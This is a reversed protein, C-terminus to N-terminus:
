CGSRNQNRTRLLLAGKRKIQLTRAEQILVNLNPVLKVLPISKRRLVKVDRDLIQVPEDEFTLDPRVEIEEISVVHTPDSRYQRLMSVHFMDYIRDLELPLELQYAVTGMCKLIRYPGIFRPSLKGKRSFRLVKKKEFQGDTQPYFSTSFELKSELAEHLKMSGVEFCLVGDNNVEFDTTSGSEVQCHRLGLSQEELQKVRILAQTLVYKLKGFSSQQTNTWVFLVGKHLLKTLPVVILSFGEVVGSLLKNLQRYNISMRMTGNKKKVFLVSARWPSVSPHFFGRDLLEQLQAKLEILEKPAMHYPAISLPATGLLLEIRFEVKQNLPLGSLEKPFVNPFDRVIRIDEVSSDKSVSVSVYALYVECGKRVFKEAVLVSIVNSLYDRRENIVVVENNDETRLVVRKKACDLSEDESAVMGRVYHSLRFFEAEYEAISRNDQTLNIFERRHADVYSAGM